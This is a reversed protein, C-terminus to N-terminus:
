RTINENKSSSEEDECRKDCADHERDCQTKCALARADAPCNDYCESAANTCNDICQNFDARAIQVCVLTTLMICYLTRM